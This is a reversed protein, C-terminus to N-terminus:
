FSQTSYSSAQGNDELNGTYSVIAFWNFIKLQNAM